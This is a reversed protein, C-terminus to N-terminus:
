RDAPDAAVPDAALTVVAIFNYALRFWRDSTPGIWKRTQAKTTLSALLSHLLGYALVALLILWFSLTM